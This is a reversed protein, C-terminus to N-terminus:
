PGEQQKRWRGDWGVRGGGQGCAAGGGISGKEVRCFADANLWGSLRLVDLTVSMPDMNETREVRARGEVEMTPGERSQMAAAEKLGGAERCRM